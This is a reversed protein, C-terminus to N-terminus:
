DITTIGSRIAFKVLSPFDLIGLKHMLRARYAEVTRPSLVLSEAVEVTSKGEAVLRVIERENQNLRDALKSVAREAERRREIELRLRTLEQLANAHLLRKEYIRGVQAGLSILFLEDEADFDDAGPKDALCIWGFSENLSVIPAALAFKFEPFGRPLGMTGPDAITGAFRRSRRESFVQGLAGAGTRTVKLSAATDVDMGSIFTFPMGGEASKVSLISYKAGTLDRAGRCFHELLASSDEEQAFLLNLEHLAIVRQEMSRLESTKKFLQDALLRVHQNVFGQPVSASGVRGAELADDVARLIEDPECPKVLVRFVGCAEALNHAERERYHATYFIVETHAIDPDARLRRVFEYGDMTPMLIDSIVVQPREARVLALGEAGDSAEFVQHRDLVLMDVVLERNVPRDDLVLVKAM